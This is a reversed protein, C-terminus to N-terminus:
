ISDTISLETQEGLMLKIQNTRCGNSQKLEQHFEMNINRRWKILEHVHLGYM